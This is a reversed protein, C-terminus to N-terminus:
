PGPRWVEGEGSELQRVTPVPSHEGGLLEEGGLVVAQVPEPGLNVLAVGGDALKWQVPVSDDPSILEGTLGSDFGSPYALPDVPRVAAGRLGVVEPHLAMTLREEPLEILDDGLFWVGGAVAAAVVAGTAREVSFPERV